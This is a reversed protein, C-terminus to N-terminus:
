TSNLSKIIILTNIIFLKSHCHIWIIKTFLNIKNITITISRFFNNSFYIKEKMYLCNFGFRLFKHYIFLKQYIFFVGRLGALFQLDGLLITQHNTFLTPPLFLFVNLKKFIDIFRM